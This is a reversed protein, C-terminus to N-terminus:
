VGKGRVHALKRSGSRWRIMILLTDRRSERGTLVAVMTQLWGNKSGASGTVLHGVQRGVSEAFRMPPVVHCVHYLSPHATQQGARRRSDPIADVESGM